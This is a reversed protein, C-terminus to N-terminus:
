RGLGKTTFTPTTKKTATGSSSSAPQTYTTPTYVSGSGGTSQGGGLTGGLLGSMAAAGSNDYTTTRPRPRPIVNIMHGVNNNKEDLEKIQNDPDVILSVKHRGLANFWYNSFKFSVSERAKLLKKVSERIVQGDVLIQVKLNKIDVDSNNEYVGYLSGKEGQYVEDLYDNAGNPIFGIETACADPGGRKLMKEEMGSGGGESSRAAEQPMVTFGHHSYNNARAPDDVQYPSANDIEVEMKYARLQRFPPTTIAMPLTTNAPLTVTQPENMFNSGDPNTVVLKVTVPPADQGSLNFANFKIVGSEGPYAFNSVNHTAVWLEPMSVGLDCRPAVQWPHTPDTTMVGSTPGATNLTVTPLNSGAPVAGGTPPQAPPNLPDVMINGFADDNGSRNQLAGVAGPSITFKVTYFGPTMPKPVTDFIEQSNARAHVGNQSDGSQRGNLTLSVNVDGARNSTNFYVARIFCRDGETVRRVYDNTRERVFGVSQAILDGPVAGPPPPVSLGILVPLNATNNGPDEAVAPNVPRITGVVNHPGIETFTYTFNQGISGIPVGNIPGDFITHPGDTLKLNIDVPNAFTNNIWFCFLGDHGATTQNTWRAEPLEEFDIRQAIIDGAAAPGPPVPPPPAGVNVTATATNNGPDEAPTGAAPTITVVLNYPGAQNLTTPAPAVTQSTAQLTMAPNDILTAGNGTVLLKFTVAQNFKNDITAGVTGATGVNVQNAPGQGGDPTFVVSRAIIDGAVANPVQPGGGGGQGQTGGGATGSSSTCGGRGCGSLAILPICFVCLMCIARVKNFAKM